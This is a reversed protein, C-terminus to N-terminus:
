EQIISNTKTLSGTLVELSKRQTELEASQIFVFRTAAILALAKLLPGLTGTLTRVGGAASQAARGKNRLATNSRQLRGKLRDTSKSLAKTQEIVRRLPNVANQADVILKVTSQAM